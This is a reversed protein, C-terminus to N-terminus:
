QNTDPEIALLYKGPTLDEISIEYEDSNKLERSLRIMPDGGKIPILVFIPSTSKSGFNKCNITLSKKDSLAKIELFKKEGIQGFLKNEIRKEFNLEPNGRMAFTEVPYRFTWKTKRRKNKKELLKTINSIGNYTTDLLVDVTNDIFAQWDKLWNKIRTKVDSEENLAVKLVKLMMKQELTPREELWQHFSLSYDLAKTVKQLCLDCNVLHEEIQLLRDTQMHSTTDNDNEQPLHSFLYESDIYQEIEEQSLHGDM